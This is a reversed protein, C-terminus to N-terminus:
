GVGRSLFWGAILIIVTVLLGLIANIRAYTARQDTKIQSIDDQIHKNGAELSALREAVRYAKIDGVAQELVLIRAGHDESM